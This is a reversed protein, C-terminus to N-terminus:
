KLAPRARRLFLFAVGAIVGLLIFAVVVVIALEEASLAVGSPLRSPAGLGAAAATREVESDPLFWAQTQKDTRQLTLTSLRAQAIVSDTHQFRIVLDGTLNAELTPHGVEIATVDDDVMIPPTALYRWVTAADARGGDDYYTHVVVKGDQEIHVQLLRAAAAPSALLLIAGLAAGLSLKLGCSPKRM